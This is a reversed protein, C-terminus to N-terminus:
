WYLGWLFAGYQASVPFVENFSFLIWSLYYLKIDESSLHEYQKGWILFGICSADEYQM